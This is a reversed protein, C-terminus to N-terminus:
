SFEPTSFKRGAFGGKRSYTSTFLPFFYNPLLAFKKLM